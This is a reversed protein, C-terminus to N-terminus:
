PHIVDIVVRSPDSLTMVRLESKSTLGIGYSLVAEFDSSVAVEKVIPLRYAIRTPATVRGQDDHAQAARMTVQVIANGQIPVPLGSGGGILQKVYGVEILPVPGDFQFVVRDYRPTAEPHYAARIATITSIYPAAHVPTAPTSFRTGAVLITLASILVWLRLKKTM